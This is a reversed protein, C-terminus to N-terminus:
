NLIDVQKHLILQMVLFSREIFLGIVHSYVEALLLKLKVRQGATLFLMHCVWPILNNMRVYEANKGSM